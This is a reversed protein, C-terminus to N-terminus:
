TLIISQSSKSLRTIREFALRLNEMEDETEWKQFDEEDSPVGKPSPDDSAGLLYAINVDLVSSLAELNDFGADETGAGMRFSHVHIGGVEKQM